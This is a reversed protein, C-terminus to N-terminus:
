ITTVAPGRPVFIMRSDVDDLIFALERDRLSPLIPNVAVGRPHGGPLRGRSRVLEAAHVVGRM